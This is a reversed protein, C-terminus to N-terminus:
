SLSEYGQDCWVKGIHAREFGFRLNSEVLQSM